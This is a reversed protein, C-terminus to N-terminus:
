LRITPILPLLLNESSIYQPYIWHSPLLLSLVCLLYCKNRDLWRRAIWFIPFIVTSSAAVNILKMVTFFNSFLFSPMLMASYVPPYHMNLGGLGKFMLHANVKYVMEDGLFTPEQSGRLVFYKLVVSALYIIVLIVASTLVPKTWYNKARQGLKSM